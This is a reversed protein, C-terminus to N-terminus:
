SKGRLAENPIMENLTLDSIARRLCGNESKLEKLRKVQDLKLGRVRRALSSVDDRDGGITKVAECVAKGQGLLVDVQRLKAVIEEPTYKRKPMLGEKSSVQEIPPDM